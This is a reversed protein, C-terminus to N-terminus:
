YIKNELLYNRIYEKVGEEIPRIKGSYGAARLKDTSAETFYQYHERINEPTDIFSVNQEIELASFICSVLDNFSRATGTGANYLGSEPKENMLFLCISCIDKVYIFDRKQEGNAIGKKHSRFLKMAGTEHIQKCAHFVVSAMRNKHYENPGYVNFFKVGAWFPPTEKRGLVWRDFDNKSKAYLNLPKLKSVLEHDDQFGQDGSGYTAASSAYLLPIGKESCINWISISYNFNLQDFTAKDKSITDTRAGLHYVADISHHTKQFWDIFEDRNIQFLFSKGLYNRYREADTFDDVLVINSHGRENLQRLLASGIFGAAGTLIIM